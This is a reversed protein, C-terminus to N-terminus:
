WSSNTEPVKLAAMAAAKMVIDNVSIKSSSSANLKERLALLKDVNVAVTVYYHPINQKSHTLREAIVKRIQSVDKDQFMANPLDVKQTKSASQTAGVSVDKAVKVPASNLADEIDALIIRSNPGTGQVSNLDVGKDQALKKAIPSV